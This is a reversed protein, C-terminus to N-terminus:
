LKVEKAKDWTTLSKKWEADLKVKIEPMFTMERTIDKLVEEKYKLLNRPYKFIIEDHIPMVIKIEGSYKTRLLKDVRVLARKLIGAATGQIRYNLAAHAEDAFLYLRRGFPTEIYGTRKAERLMDTLLSIIRPHREKYRMFGVKADEISMGITNAFVILSSGYGLGFHGNKDISRLQKYKKPENTFINSIYEKGRFCEMAERHVDEDNNIMDLMMKDGAAEVILRMEIGQFDAFYLISNDHCTFCQRLPVHYPNKISENKSTNQMNPKKSTQRGTKAENSGINPYIFGGQNYKQYQEITSIGKICSRQELIYDLFKIDPYLKRYEALENKGTLPDGTKESFRLPKIGYVKYLIRAIQDSSNINIFENCLKYTEIQIENIRNELRDYLAQMNKIHLKLGTQEIRNVVKVAEIENWYDAEFASGKLKDWFFKFLLITREGDAIQYPTMVSQPIKDFSGYMKYYKIVEDDQETPYDCLEKCLNDLAHSYRLNFLVQSMLMTDHWITQEPIKIIKELHKLEFHFNHCVKAVSIDNFINQLLTLDDHRSKSRSDIRHVTVKGDLYGLCYAFIDNDSTTEIDLIIEKM